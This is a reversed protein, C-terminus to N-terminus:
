VRLGFSTWPLYRVPTGPRIDAAEDPLEVLGDAWSLGGVLGSGESHFAEAAGDPTLRARLYERRGPKKRKEFAAPVAFGQPEPWGRGAMVALAPRAFILATVFAAVPNGPLGFVPVGRWLGLALPRGPKVAIRWTEVRGEERILRSIHDEDGASAGGTTLIADSEAAGRDLAARIARARDPMAGLDVPIHGWEAALASLMPRNADFIGPAAPDDGPQLLEDGTSLVAIRLPARVALRDIGVVALRALDAATLRRGAPLVEDGDTADEGLGRSNAGQKRPAHFRVRGAGVTADEQLVVTDAGAPIEAGTLIRLAHGPALRGSFPSGAAARGPELPLNVEDRGGLSAWAFAYGDIASNAAPPNARRAIAPRALIRGAAEALSIEETATVPTVSNRLRALAEDVPTWHIGPPLAFCDDRLRGTMALVEGRVGRRLPP